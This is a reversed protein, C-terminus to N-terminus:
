PGDDTNHNPGYNGTGHNLGYVSGMGSGGGSVGPEHALVTFPLIAIFLAIGLIKPLRKVTIGGNSFSARFLGERNLAGWM